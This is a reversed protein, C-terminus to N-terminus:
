SSSSSSLNVMIATLAAAAMGVGTFAAALRVTYSGSLLRFRSRM